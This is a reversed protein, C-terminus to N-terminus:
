MFLCEKFPLLAAGIATADPKAEAPVLRPEPRGRGRRALNDIRIEAILRRALVQPLRGGFVIADPDLLAVAASAILSLSRRANKVWRECAPWDPDFAKLMAYIDPFVIDDEGLMARLQELTPRELNQMPLMGAVEGANGHAGRVYRGDVIIGGGLGHSFYLYVFSQAWQGVGLLSEGVAAVTGDNDLWVPMSLEQKLLSELDVLALKELPVPPNTRSGEGVFFGTIGVGMGFLRGEPIQHTHVYLDIHRRLLNVLRTPALNNTAVHMQKLVNGGMDILATSVSDTSISVGISYAYHPVLEIAPSPKGRGGRPLSAGLCLLQRGVLEDVLRMISQATLGTARVLDARSSVRRRWVLDLVQRENLSVV